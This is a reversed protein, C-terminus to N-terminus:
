AIGGGQTFDDDDSAQSYVDGSASQSYTDGSAGQTAIFLDSPLVPAAGLGYGLTPLDNVGGWAGFGLTITSAVSAM